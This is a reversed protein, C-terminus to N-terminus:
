SASPRLHNMKSAFTFGLSRARMKADEAVEGQFLQDITECFLTVWIEFHKQTAQLHKHRDFVNTTYGAENLLAFRWFQKIKPLHHELDLNEFFPAMEPHSLLRDYFMNVLRDIDFATSIDTM